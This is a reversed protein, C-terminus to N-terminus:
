LKVALTVYMNRGDAPWIGPGPYFTPRKTFYQKNTINNVGARVGLVSNLQVMGNFDLTGYGPTYGKSGNAPPTYTNLADSYTSSV